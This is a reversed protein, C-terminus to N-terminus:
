KKATVIWQDCYKRIRIVRSTRMFIPEINYNEFRSDTMFRKIDFDSYEFVHDPNLPYKYPSKTVVKMIISYIKTLRKSNPTVIIASGNPKLVRYIEQLAMKDDKVHEIVHLMTVLDFINDSFPLHTADSVVFPSTQKRKNIDTLVLQGVDILYHAKKGAKCGIDLIRSSEILGLKSVNKKSIVWDLSVHNKAM